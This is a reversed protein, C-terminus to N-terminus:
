QGRGADVSLPLRKRPGSEMINRGERWLQRRIGNVLKEGDYDVSKTLIAYFVRLVKYAIAVVSRMKKLPNEKRTRCYEHISRIEAYIGTPICPYSFRGENVLAVITKPVKCDNKSLATM